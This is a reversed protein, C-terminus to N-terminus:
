TSTQAMMPIISLYVINNYDSIFKAYKTFDKLMVTMKIDIIISKEWGAVHVHVHLRRYVGFWWLSDGLRIKDHLAITRFMVECPNEGPNLPRLKPPTKSWM